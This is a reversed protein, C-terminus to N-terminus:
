TRPEDPLPRRAREDSLGHSWDHGREDPPGSGAGYGCAACRTRPNSRPDPGCGRIRKSSNMALFVRFCFCRAAVRRGPAGAGAAGRGGGCALRRRRRGHGRTRHEGSTSGSVMRGSGPVWSSISDSGISSSAPSSTADRARSAEDRRRTWRTLGAAWGRGDPALHASGRQELREVALLRRDREVANGYTGRSRRRTAIMADSMTTSMRMAANTTVRM